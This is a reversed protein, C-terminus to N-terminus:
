IIEYRGEGLDRLYGKASLMTFLVMYSTENRNTGCWCFQRTSLVRYPAITIRALRLAAAEEGTLMAKM